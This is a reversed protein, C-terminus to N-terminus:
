ALRVNLPRKSGKVTYEDVLYPYNARFKKSDLSPEKQCVSFVQPLQVRIREEDLVRDYKYSIHFGAVQLDEADGLYRKLHGKAEELAAEAEDAKAKAKLYADVLKTVQGNANLGNGNNAM